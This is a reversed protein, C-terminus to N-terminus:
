PQNSQGAAAAAAAKLRGSESAAGGKAKGAAANAADGPDRLDVPWSSPNAGFDPGAEILLVTRDAETLRNALVCGAAAAGAGVVVVDFHVKEM